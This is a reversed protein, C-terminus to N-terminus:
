LADQNVFFVVQPAALLSSIFSFISSPIAALVPNAPIRNVPFYFLLELLILPTGIGLFTGMVKWWHGKVLKTSYGLAELGSRDRLAVVFTGFSYYVLLILSPIASLINLGLSSYKLFIAPSLVLLLYLGVTIFIALFYTLIAPMWRSLGSRFAESLSFEDGNIHKELLIFLCLFALIRIGSSVLLLAFDLGTSPLTNSINEHFLIARPTWLLLGEVLIVGLALIAINKFQAQIIKFGERYIELLNLQRGYIITKVRGRKEPM